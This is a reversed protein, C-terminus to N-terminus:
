GQPPGNPAAVIQANFAGGAGSEFVAVCRMFSRARM